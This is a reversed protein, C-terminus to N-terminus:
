LIYDAAILKNDVQNSYVAYSFGTQISYGGIEGKKNLAIFGVQFDKSKVSGHRAIIRELAIKCAMKPSYGQRMFEVVLFTGCNKIVEEGLGTAAAGGVANDVYLGSGVIPSDGVRGAMKFAMGSTTCSASLNGFEDLAIMSITDHNFEGGPMRAPAFASVNAGEKQEINIQPKYESKQLWKEYEKQASPSLKDEELPFGQELAFKQAGAGVLYVHPTKEMVRRAVSIPHKIRELAMVGGANGHSDMICADLTVKGDRDPNGGLGVCCNITSETVMVGQEVADLAQGKAKLVKWAAVNADIGADWTSIVVPKQGIKPVAALLKNAMMSGIGLSSMTVFKRRQMGM